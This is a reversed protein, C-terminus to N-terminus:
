WGWDDGQEELENFEVAKDSLAWRFSFVEASLPIQTPSDHSPLSDKSTVKAVIETGRSPDFYRVPHHVGVVEKFEFDGLEDMGIGEEEKNKSNLIAAHIQSVACQVRMKDNDDDM